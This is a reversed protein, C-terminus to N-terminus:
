LAGFVQFLYRIEEDIQEPQSVTNAIEDRVLERFRKRMRHVVSRVGTQSLGLKPAVEEYSTESEGGLLFGKLEEFRERQGSEEIEKRLRAFVLALLTEAWRQDFLVEPTKLDAPELAYRSEAEGHDLSVVTMGGGRKQAQSKDWENALFHTLSGLLFTRFKGREADARALCNKELLHAFFGQTLDQATHADYGRRRIYAYLPYWYASCLSQLAGQAGPTSDHAAALVVSWHTTVFWQDQRLADDQKEADPM